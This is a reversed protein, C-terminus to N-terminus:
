VMLYDNMTSRSLNLRDDDKILDYSSICSEVFMNHPSLSAIRCLMELGSHAVLDNTAIFSFLKSLLQLFSVDTLDISTLATKIEIWDNVVNGLLLDPMYKTCLNNVQENGYNLLFEEKDASLANSISFPNFISAFAMMENSELRDEIFNKAAIVAENRIAAFDRPTTVYVNTVRRHLEQLKYGFFNGDATVSKLFLEEWGGIKPSSYIQSLQTIAVDRYSPIQLIIIQNNQFKLQLRAFVEVIDLLLFLLHLKDRKLWCSLFGKAKAKEQADHKSEHDQSQTWYALCGRLNRAFARLIQMTFETMRVEKFQPWHIMDVAPSLEKCVEQLEKCRVGSTRFFTCVSVVENLLKDVETVTNRLSKFALSSRHCACWYTLLKRQCSGQLLVWLGRREGTNANEGDTTIGCIKKSAKDDWSWGISNFANKVAFLVGEAGRTTPSESSIFSTILNGTTTIYSVAVTKNEVQYADVHGDVKVSVAVASDLNTALDSRGISAICELCEQHHVPNMYQAEYLTPEYPVFTTPNGIDSDKKDLSSAVNRAICRSPWSWASLTGRKSDNYVDSLNYLLKRYLHIETRKVSNIIPHMPSCEMYLAKKKFAELCARHIDSYHHRLVISKQYRTGEKTAIAPIRGKWLTKIVDPFEVCVKCFIRRKKNKSGPLGSIEM